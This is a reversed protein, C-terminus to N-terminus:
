GVVRMDAARPYREFFSKAQQGDMAVRAAKPADGPKPVLSLISRYASPHIGKISQCMKELAFRYVDEASDMGLVDGVWPRVFREAEGRENLRQTTIKVAEQVARDTAIKVARDTAAKIAADMAPKTMPPDTKEDEKGGEAPDDDQAPDGPADSTADPKLLKLLLQLDADDLKGALLERIKNELDDDGAVMDEETQEGPPESNGGSGELSELLDTLTEVSADMALKEKALAVARQAVIGKRKSWNGEIGSLMKKFDPPAKDQAMGKAWGSLAAILVPMSPSSGAAQKTMPKEKSPDEALQSDAIGPVDGAADLAEDMVVVDAGARGKEVQAVHNGRINRMVGDYRQGRFEGPTMDADYYYGASLERLQGSEVGAIAAADWFVLSNKLYPDEFEADTGTSGVTLDRSPEGASVPVHRALIQLNNFTPAAKRLEDPDRLLLYIEDPSLGLAQWGPIEAGRYPNVAAKSINSVAVHLRGDEDFRRVSRTADLPM